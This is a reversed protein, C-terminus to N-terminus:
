PGSSGCFLLWIGHGIMIGVHYISRFCKQPDNAGQPKCPIWISLRPISELYGGLHLGPPSDPECAYNRDQLRGSFNVGQPTYTQEKLRAFDETSGLAMFVHAGFDFSM